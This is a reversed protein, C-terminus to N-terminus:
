SKPIFVRVATVRDSELHHLVTVAVKGRGDLSATKSRFKDLSLSQGNIQWVTSADVRKTEYQCEACQKYAITGVSRQPLRIDSLAVEYAESITRFQAAAPLALSLVLATVVIKLKM